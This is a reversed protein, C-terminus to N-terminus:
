RLARGEGDFRHILSEIPSLGIKNGVKVGPSGPMRVVLSGAVDSYTHVHSEVGLNEILEVTAPWIAGEKVIRITSAKLCPDFVNATNRLKAM